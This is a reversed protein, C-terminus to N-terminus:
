NKDFFLNIMNCVHYIEKKTIFEHVPLSVSTDALREAVPFDGKKHKLFKSAKQLHIPIPYHVKADISKSKLFKILNDRKKKVNIHYLHFVEKIKKERPVLQIQNNNKLLKDFLLANRIRRNTINNLKNKMKFNAVAAQVSDLRSNYGFIECINRNKLGHNRLLNLKKSLRTDNTLIFGGDGWVNLNKLPHMSFTCLDGYKVISNKYYLTDIAHSSDQIIKLKYKKAIQYIKKLECPKGAWHVPMIAKTRKTIAKEIKNEDINYDEKIDVFVPKAGSTVISATTAIFSYPPTIVEDGDGIGFVKLSLYLADTGNGVSIAHKAKMRKAINKEFIEVQEGLTYDGKKVVKSIEKLIKKYDFFQEVLYTHNIKISKNQNFQKKVYNLNKM